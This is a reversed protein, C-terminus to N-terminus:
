YEPNTEYIREIQITLYNDLASSTLTDDFVLQNDVELVHRVMITDGIELYIYDSFTTSGHAGDYANRIYVWGFFNYNANEFYDTSNIRLYNSFAIRNNYTESQTQASVKINYYGNKTLTVIGETDVTSFDEGTRRNNIVVDNYSGNGWSSKDISDKDFSLLLMNPVIYQAKITTATIDIGDGATYTTDTSSIQNGVITVNTGATYVDNTDTSSIQNGVITVNSGATLINQKTTELNAIDENVEEIKFHNLGNMSPKNFSM